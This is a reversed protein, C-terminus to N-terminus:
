VTAQKGQAVVTRLIAQSWAAAEPSQLVEDLGTLLARRREGGVVRWLEDGLERALTEVQAATLGAGPSDDEGRLVPDSQTPTTTSPPPAVEVKHEQPVTPPLRDDEQAEQPAPSLPVSSAPSAFTTQKQGTTKPRMLRPHVFGTAELEARAVAVDNSQLTEGAVVRERFEQLKEYPLKAIERAATASIQRREVADALVQDDLLRLRDRIQQPSVHIREALAPPTLHELRMLEQYSRAEDLPPLDQRQLNEILQLIRVRTKNAEAVIVPVTALGAAEAAARRRGGAIIIYSVGGATNDPDERVLLPQIIGFERISAALDAMAQRAMDSSWDTRPQSPDPKVRALPVDFAARLPDIEPRATVVAEFSTTPKRQAM